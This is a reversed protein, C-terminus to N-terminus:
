TIDLRGTDNELESVDVEGSILRPLAAQRHHGRGLM